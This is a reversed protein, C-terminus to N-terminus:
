LLYFYFSLIQFGSISDLIWKYYVVQSAHKPLKRSKSDVIWIVNNKCSPNQLLKNQKRTDQIINGGGARLLGVIENKQPCPPNFSGVLM